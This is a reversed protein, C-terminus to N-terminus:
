KTAEKIHNGDEDTEPIRSCLKYLASHLLQKAYENGTLENEGTEELSETYEWKLEKERNSCTSKSISLESAITSFSKESARLKVYELKKETTKM